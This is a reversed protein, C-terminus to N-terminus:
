VFEDKINGELGGSCKSSFAHDPGQHMICLSFTIKQDRRSTPSSLELESGRFWESQSPFSVATMETAEM